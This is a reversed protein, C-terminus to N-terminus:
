TRSEFAPLARDTDPVAALLGAREAEGKLGALDALTERDRAGRGHAALARGRAAFFEAWPLREGGLRASLADAYRQAEDWQGAHLGVAIADRYFGFYNCTPSCSPGRAASPKPRLHPKRPDTPRRARRASGRAAVAAFPIKPRTPSAAPKALSASRRVVSPASAAVRRNDHECAACRM